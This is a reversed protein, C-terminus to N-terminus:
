LMWPQSVGGPSTLSEILPVLDTSKWLVFDPEMAAMEPLSYTGNWLTGVTLTGANRGAGIDAISDGILLMHSPPLGLRGLIINPGMPDPKPRTAEDGTVVVAFCQEIGLKQLTIETTRRGKGTMLALALGKRCCLDLAERIGPYLTCMSDHLDRYLEYFRSIVLSDRRGAIQVLISEETGAGPGFMGVVEERSLRRGLAAELAGAFSEVLLGFTDALTGDLDFAVAEICYPSQPM